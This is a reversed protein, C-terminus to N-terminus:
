KGPEPTPQADAPLAYFCSRGYSRGMEVRFDVTRNPDPKQIVANKDVRLAKMMTQLSAPKSNGTYDYIVTLDRMVVGETGIARAAFGEWSLRDAAVKDYGKLPQAAGVAVTPSEAGLRNQPPPLIFNQMAKKWADAVPLLAYAGTDSTYWNKFHVNPTLDIRQIKEPDVALGTPVLGLIDTLTMDTEIFKQVEPWLSTVQAFLGAQRAQRWIARLVDMQRRGRDFDSSSGRSRVYWLAMYPSLRHHGIPMTYVEYNEEKTIDLDPSKLRNGQVACDVSLDLGGLKAILNQFSVFDVRAYFDIKLGTNYQLTDKMLKAGGGPGYRENGYSVITNIKAMTYNPVYVFLDRPIHMMTVTQATRNVALLIIVDTRAAKGAEITDSGLLLVNVVDDGSPIPSSMSMPIATVPTQAPTEYTGLIVLTPPVTPTRTPTRTPTPTRTNTPTRTLTPTRTDTPTRTYTPTRTPPVTRTPALTRTPTTTPIPTRASTNTPIVTAPGGRPTNTPPLTAQSLTLAQQSLSIILGLLAVLAAKAVRNSHPM